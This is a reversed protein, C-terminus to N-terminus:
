KLTLARKFFIGSIHNTSQRNSESAQSAGIAGSLIGVGAAVWGAAM